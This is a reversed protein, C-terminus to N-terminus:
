QGRFLLEQSIQQGLCILELLVSRVTARVPALTVCGPVTADPNDVTSAYDTVKDRQDFLKVVTAVELLPEALVADIIWATVFALLDHFALQVDFTDPREIASAQRSLQIEEEIDNLEQVIM